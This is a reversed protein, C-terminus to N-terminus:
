QKGGESIQEKLKRNISEILKILMRKIYFIKDSIKHENVNYNLLNSLEIQTELEAASGLAIYLFRIFEKKSNRASGEAINSPISIAARRMQSMLVYKEENPFLSTLKYIDVVMSISEQYVILDKHSKIGEEM